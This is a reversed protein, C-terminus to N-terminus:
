KNQTWNPLPSISGFSNWTLKDTLFLGFIPFHGLKHFSLQPLDLFSYVQLAATFSEWSKASLVWILTSGYYVSTLALTCYDPILKSDAHEPLYSERTDTRASRQQTGSGQLQDLSEAIHFSSSRLMWYVKPSFTCRDRFSGQELLKQKFKSSQVAKSWDRLDRKQFLHYLSSAVCSQLVM